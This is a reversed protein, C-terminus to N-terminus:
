GQGGGTGSKKIPGPPTAPTPTPTAKVPATLGYPNANPNVVPPRVPEPLGYPNQFTTAAPAGVTQPPRGVIQGPVPSSIAAPAEAQPPGDNSYPTTKIPQALPQPPATFVGPTAAGAAAPQRAVGAAQGTQTTNAPSGPAGANQGYSPAMIGPMVVQGQGSQRYLTPRAADRGSGMSQRVAEADNDTMADYVPLNSPRGPRRGYEDGAWVVLRRAAGGAGRRAHADIRDYSSAAVMGEVRPAAVYGATGRLLTELAQAEPVDTMQMTIPGGALRDLNTILVRGQRAWEALIQRPTADTAVITVLGNSFSVKVDGALAPVAVAVLAVALTLRALRKM